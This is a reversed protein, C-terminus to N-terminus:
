FFRGSWQGQVKKGEKYVGKQTASNVLISKIPLVLAGEVFSIEKGVM